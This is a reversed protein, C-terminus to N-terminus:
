ARRRRRRTSTSGSCGFRSGSWDHIVLGRTRTWRIAGDTRVMRFEATYPKGHELAARVRGEAYERDDPHIFERFAEITGGFTGPALGVHREVVPSWTVRGTALGWDWAGLDAADLALRQREESIRLAEAQEREETIDDYTGIWEVTEGDASPVPVGRMDLQRFVGAASRVRFTGQFALGSLIASTWMERTRERDDSHVADLWGFDDMDDPSQGTFEMWWPSTESHHHGSVYRWVAASSAEVLARYRRESRGVEEEARKLETLDLAYGIFVGGRIIAKGVLVPVRSGRKTRYEKEYGPFQGDRQLRTLAEETQAVWEEPTMAQLNIGGAELDSRSYELMSLFLDNAELVRGSVEATFVGLVNTDVLRRVTMESEDRARAARDQESAIGVLHEAVSLAEREGADEMSLRVATDVARQGDPHLAFRELEDLRERMAGGPYLTLFESRITRLVEGLPHRLAIRELVRSQAASVAASRGVSAAARDVHRAAVFAGAMALAALMGKITLEQALQERARGFAVSRSTDTVVLWGGAAVAASSVFQGTEGALDTADRDVEAGSTTMDRYAPTDSVSRLQAIAGQEVIIQGARDVITTDAGILRLLPQEGSDDLRLAGVLVGRMEGGATWVPVAIPVVLVESPQSLVAQGVFPQGTDRVAQFYDRQSVDVTQEPSSFTASATMLGEPSVLAFGGGFGLTELDVRAMYADHQEPTGEVFIPATALAQLVGTRQTLYEQVAAATTEIRELARAAVRNGSDQAHRYSLVTSVGSLLVIIAVLLWLIRTGPRADGSQWPTARKV